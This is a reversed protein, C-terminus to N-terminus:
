LIKKLINGVKYINIGEVIWPPSLVICIGSLEINKLNPLGKKMKIQKWDTYKKPYKWLDEEADCRGYSGFEKCEEKPYYWKYLGEKRKDVFKVWTGCNIKPFDKGCIDDHYDINILIDYVSKKLIPLINEHNIILDINCKQNLKSLNVFFNFCKMMMGSIEYSEYGIYFWYDLDISLYTKM